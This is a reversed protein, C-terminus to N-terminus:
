KPQSKSIYRLIVQEVTLKTGFYKVNIYFGRFEERMQRVNFKTTGCCSVLCYCHAHLRRQKSGVECSSYITEIHAREDITCGTSPDCSFLYKDGTGQLRGIAEDLRRRNYVTDMQNTNITVLFMVNRRALPDSNDRDGIRSDVNVLKTSDSM